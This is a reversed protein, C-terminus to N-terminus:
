RREMAAMRTAQSTSPITTKNELHTATVVKYRFFSVYTVYCMGFGRPREMEGQLLLDRGQGRHAGAAAARQDVLVDRHLAPGRGHDGQLGPFWAM